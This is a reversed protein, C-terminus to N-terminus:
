DDKIQIIDVAKFNIKTGDGKKGMYDGKHTGTYTLYIVVKDKEEIMFDINARFDPFAIFIMKFYEKLGKKNLEFGPLPENEIYDDAVLKDLLKINGSNLFDTYFKNVWEKNNTKTESKDQAYIISSFIIIAFAIVLKKLM